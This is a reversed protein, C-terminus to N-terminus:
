HVIRTIFVTILIIIMALSGIVQTMMNVWMWMDHLGEAALLWKLTKINYRFCMTM